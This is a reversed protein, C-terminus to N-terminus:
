FDVWIGQASDITTTCRIGVKTTTDFASNLVDSDKGMNTGVASDAQAHRYVTALVMAGFVECELVYVGGNSLSFAVPSGSSSLASDVGAIVKRLRLGGSADDLQAYLYNSGDAYKLVVGIDSTGTGLQLMASVKYRRTLLVRTNLTAIGSTGVVLANSSISWDGTEETWPHGSRAPTITSGNARVFDDYPGPGIGHWNSADDIMLQGAPNYLRGAKAATPPASGAAGTKHAHIADTDTSGDGNLGLQLATENDRVYTNMESAPLTAADAWTKPNTYVDAM